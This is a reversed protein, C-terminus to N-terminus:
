KISQRLRGLETMLYNLRQQAISVGQYVRQAQWHLQYMTQYDAGSHRARDWEAIAQNYAAQAIKLDVKASEIENLLRQEAPTVSPVPAPSPVTRPPIYTPEPTSTLVLTLGIVSWVWLGIAGLIVCMRKTKDLALWWRRVARLITYVRKM